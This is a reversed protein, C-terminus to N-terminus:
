QLATARLTEFVSSVSEAAHGEAEAKAFLHHVAASLATAVGAERMTEAVHEAGVVQMALDNEEGPYSGAEIEATVERLYGVPSDQSMGAFLESAYPFLREVRQGAARLLAVSHMYSTLSATFVHLMAQYYIMALGPDTGM